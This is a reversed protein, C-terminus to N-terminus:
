RNMMSAGASETRTPAERERFVKELRDRAAKLALRARQKPTMRLARM